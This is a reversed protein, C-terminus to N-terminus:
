DVRVGRDSGYRLISITLDIRERRRLNHRRRRSLGIARSNEIRPLSGSSSRSQIASKRGGSDARANERHQTGRYRV